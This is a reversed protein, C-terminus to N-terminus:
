RPVAGQTAPQRHAAVRDTANGVDPVDSLLNEAVFHRFMRRGRGACDAIEDAVTRRVGNQNSSRLQQQQQQQQQARLVDIQTPGWAGAELSQWQASRM